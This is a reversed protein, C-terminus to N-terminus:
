LIGAEARAIETYSVGNGCFDSRMLSVRSVTMSVPHPEPLRDPHSAKKILTIHPLFPKEDCPIGHRKLLERVRAALAELDPTRAVGAWLLNGFSGTGSLRMEFSSFRLESLARSVRHFDGEEGIFALTLHLNEEPSLKGSAGRKRFERELRMLETKMEPTLLVAIFLRMSEEKRIMRVNVIGGKCGQKGCRNGTMTKKQRESLEPTGPLM